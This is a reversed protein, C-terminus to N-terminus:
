QKVFKKVNTGNESVIRVFYVGNNLHSVDLSATNNSNPQAIVTQGLLNLVEVKNFDSSASINIKSSSPNPYIIFEPAQIEAIGTCAQLTFLAPASVGSGDLCVLKVAWTHQLSPDFDLDAYTLEAVKEAILMGDRYINYFMDEMAKYGQLRFMMSPYTGAESEWTGTDDQYFCKPSGISLGHIYVWYATFEENEQSDYVGYIAIWYKGPESIAFPEPLLITQERDFNGSITTLYENEYIQEGPLNSGNDKFIEVGMYDPPAMAPQGSPTYFGGSYVETIYWTEGAPIVFDDAMIIRRSFAEMLCRYSKNGYNAPESNDWLIETPAYWNLVTADCGNEYSVRLSKPIQPCDPDKCKDKYFPIQPTYGDCVVQISWTHALTPEFAIDTYTETTVTAIALGDRFVIYRNNDGEPAKWTLEAQSCDGSYEVTLNTVPECDFPINPDGEIKFYTSYSGTSITSGDLWTAAPIDQHAFLGAKDYFHYFFNGKPITGRSINWRHAAVQNNQDVSVDYTGAVTIWYKGPAPLEFPVPLTIEVVTEPSAIYDVDIANNKYIEAGPKNEPDNSYIIISMKTPFKAPEPSNGRSYVKEIIWPGDADFDDAAWAWNENGSWYTSIITGTPNIQTNDWLIIGGGRASKDAAEHAVVTASKNGSVINPMDEGVTQLPINQAYVFAFMLFLGLFLLTKKM